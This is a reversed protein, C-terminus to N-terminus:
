AERKGPLIELVSERIFALVNRSTGCQPNHFITISTM